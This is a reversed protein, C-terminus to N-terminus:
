NVESKVTQREIPAVVNNPNGEVPIHKNFEINLNGRNKIM